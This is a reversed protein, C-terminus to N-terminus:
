GNRSTRSRFGQQRYRKVETKLEADGLRDCLAEIFDYAANLKVRLDLVNAAYSSNGSSNRTPAHAARRDFGSTLPEAAERGGERTSETAERKNDVM